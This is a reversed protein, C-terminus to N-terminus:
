RENVVEVEGAARIRARMSRRTEPNVVRIVQNMAGNDTAV